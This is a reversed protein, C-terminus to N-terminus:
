AAINLFVCMCVYMCVCLYFSFFFFVVFFFFLLVVFFLCIFCFVCCCCFILLLGIDWRGTRIEIIYLQMNGPVKPCSPENMIHAAGLSFTDELMTIHM